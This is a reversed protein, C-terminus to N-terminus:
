TSIPLVDNDEHYYVYLFQSYCTHFLISNGNIWLSIAQSVIIIIEFVYTSFMKHESYIQLKKTPYWADLNIEVHLYDFKENMSIPSKGYPFTKGSPLARSICFM